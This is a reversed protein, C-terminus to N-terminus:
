NRRMVVLQETRISNRSHVDYRSYSELDHLETLSLGVHEGIATLLAPTDIVFTTGGLSTRSPGVVLALSGGRKLCQATLSMARTMGALYRYVVAPTNRRRFGDGDPDYAELLSKCLSWASDPLEAENHEIAYELDRRERTLVERSGILAADM